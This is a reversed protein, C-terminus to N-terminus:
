ANALKGVLTTNTGVNALTRIRDLSIGVHYWRSVDHLLTVNDLTPALALTTIRQSVLSCLHPLPVTGNVNCSFVAEADPPMDLSAFTKHGMIRVTLKSGFIAKSQRWTSVVKARSSALSKIGNLGQWSVM